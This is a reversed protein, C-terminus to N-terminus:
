KKCKNNTQNQFLGKYTLSKKTEKKQLTLFEKAVVPPGQVIKEGLLSHFSGAVPSPMRTRQELIQCYSSCSGWNRHACSHLSCQLSGQQLGSTESCKM